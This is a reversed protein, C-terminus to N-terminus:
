TSKPVSLTSNETSVGTSEIKFLGPQVRGNTTVGVFPDTDLQAEAKRSMERFREERDGTPRQSLLTVSLLLVFTVLLSLRTKM